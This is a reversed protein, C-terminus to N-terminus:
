SVAWHEVLMTLDLAGANMLFLGIKTPTIFDTRGISHVSIWNVGDNSIWCKRNTGDDTIRWWEARWFGKGNATYDASFTTIGTYKSIAYQDQLSSFGGLQTDFAVFGTGDSWCIGAHINTASVQAIQLKTTLTYPTAPANKLLARVNTSGGAAQTMVLGGSTDSATASGQNTWTFDAVVPPTLSSGSSAAAWKMGTAQSSDATLVQGNTGVALRTTSAGHVILDGKTTTPDAFGSSPTAWVIHHTVPDVTLVQGDAGKGLRAPAGSADGVILDDQTTMPNTMGSSGSSALTITDGADNVTITMNTGAVLAAGIADRAMEDTYQTITSAVTITDAGDNPTVTIGTGGVLAAGIADRAMEDTYSGAGIVAADVYAKVSQQTPVKTALDSTMADEDIVFGYGSADTDAVMVAGAAAVNGADTVDAGAEIGALKALNAATTWKNTTASDSIDDADLVVAGTQTNVSDVAGAAGAGVAVWTPTTATLVWFSSDDTQFALKGVDGSVFGTAAGRATADAYEFAHAMHNNAVTINKHLTM